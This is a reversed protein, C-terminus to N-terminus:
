YFNFTQASIGRKTESDARLDNLFAIVKSASVDPFFAFGCGDIIKRACSVVLDVHREGCGKAQLSETWDTLHDALPKASAVRDPPLVGITVLRERTKAPLTTLWTTLSPDVQGGSGRFYGVLKALNRGLEESAAKSTFAPLRRVTQHHDRFEVYWKSAERKRGKADKYTTKFIRFGM